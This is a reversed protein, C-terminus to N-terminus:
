DSFFYTLIRGLFQSYWLGAPKQKNTKNKNKTKCKPLYLKQNAVVLIFLHLILGYPSKKGM